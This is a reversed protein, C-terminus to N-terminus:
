RAEEPSKSLGYLLFFIGFIGVFFLATGYFCLLFSVDFISVGLALISLLLSFVLIIGIFSSQIVMGKKRKEINLLAEGLIEGKSKAEKIIGISKLYVYEGPVDKHKGKETVEFLWNEYKDSRNDLSTLAYVVIIGYFGIITAQAEILSKLMTEKSSTAVLGYFLAAFALFTSVAVSFIVLVASKWSILKKPSKTESTRMELELSNNIHENILNSCMIAWHVEPVVNIQLTAKVKSPIDFLVFLLSNTLVEPSSGERASFM